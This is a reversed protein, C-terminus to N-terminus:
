SAPDIQKRNALEDDLVMQVLENPYAALDAAYAACDIKDQAKGLTLLQAM